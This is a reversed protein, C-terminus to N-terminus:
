RRELSVGQVGQVRGAGDCNREDHTVRLRSAHDTIRSAFTGVEWGEMRGDKWGVM